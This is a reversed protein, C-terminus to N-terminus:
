HHALIFPGTKRRIIILSCEHVAICPHCFFFTSQMKEVNSVIELDAGTNQYLVVVFYLGIKKRRTM